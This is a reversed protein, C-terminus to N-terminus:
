SCGSLCFVPVLGGAQLADHTGVDTLVGAEKALHHASLLCSPTSGSLRASLSDVEQALALGDDRAQLCM